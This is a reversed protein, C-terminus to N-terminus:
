LELDLVEPEGQPEQYNESAVQVNIIENEEIQKSDEVAELVLDDTVPTADKPTASENDAVIAQQMETSLPAYTSLMAKLVTKTAMADFDTQWPSSSRNFSKSFRKGHATVKEKDWYIIKRFGNALEMSAFYGAIEIGQPKSFDIELEEFLNDYKIFQNEYVPGANLKTVQGSRIALQILGKYGIQFQAERGYPIVYAFGLSPEIPLDLTAAKMAATMVSNSDVNKLNTSGVLSLLSGVFGNTKKGLVEEFKRKAADSKLVTQTPTLNAM